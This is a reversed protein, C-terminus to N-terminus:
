SPKILPQYQTTLAYKFPLRLIRRDSSSEFKCSRQKSKESLKSLISETSWDVALLIKKSKQEKLNKPRLNSM